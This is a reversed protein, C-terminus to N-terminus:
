FRISIGANLEFQHSYKSDGVLYCGWYPDCWWGATTTTIYTPTWRGELRLGFNEGPYVKM